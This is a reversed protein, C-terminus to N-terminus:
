SGGKIWADKERKIQRVALGKCEGITPVGVHTTIGIMGDRLQFGEEYPQIVFRGEASRFEGRNRRMWKM